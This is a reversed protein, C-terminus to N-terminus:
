EDGEKGISNEIEMLALKESLAQRTLENLEAKVLPASTAQLSQAASLQGLAADITEFFKSPDGAMVVALRHDAPAERFGEPGFLMLRRGTTLGHSDSSDDKNELRLQGDEFRIRTSLSDVFDAPVWGAAYNVQSTASSTGILRVRYLSPPLQEQPDFVGLFYTQEIKHSMCGAILPAVLLSLVASLRSM